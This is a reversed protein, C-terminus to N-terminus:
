QVIKPAVTMAFYTSPKTKETGFDFEPLGVVALLRVTDYKFAVIRKEFSKWLPQPQCKHFRIRLQSM